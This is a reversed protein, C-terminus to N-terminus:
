FNVDDFSFQVDVLVDCLRFGEVQLEEVDSPDGSRVQVAEVYSLGLLSGSEAKRLRVAVDFAMDLVDGGADEGRAFCRVPFTATCRDRGLTLQVSEWAPAHVAISPFVPVAEFLHVGRLISNADHSFGGAITIGGLRTEIADRIDRIRSMVVGETGVEVSDIWVAGDYAALVQFRVQGAAGTAVVPASLQYRSWAGSVVFFESVSFVGSGPDIQVDLRCSSGFNVPRAYFAVPYSVDVAFPVAQDCIGFVPGFTSGILQLVKSGAHAEATAHEAASGYLSRGGDGLEFSPDPYVNAM